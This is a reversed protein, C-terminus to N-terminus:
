KTIKKLENKAFERSCLKFKEFHLLYCDIFRYPKRQSCRQYDNFHQGCKLIWRKEDKIDMDKKFLELIDTM